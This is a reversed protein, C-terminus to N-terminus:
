RYTASRARKPLAGIGPAFRIRVDESVPVTGEVLRQRLSAGMVFAMTYYPFGEGTVGDSLVPVIHPEQLQATLKIKRAFREAFRGAALEPSLVNIVVARDLRTDRALFVDAMGGGGLERDLQYADGLSNQLQERLSM